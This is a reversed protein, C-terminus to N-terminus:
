EGLFFPRVSHFRRCRSGGVGPAEQVERELRVHMYVNITQSKLPQQKYAACADLPEFCGETNDFSHQTNKKHIPQCLSFLFLKCKSYEKADTSRNARFTLQKPSNARFSWSSYSYVQLAWVSSSSENFSKTIFSSVLRVHVFWIVMKNALRRYVCVCTATSSTLSM